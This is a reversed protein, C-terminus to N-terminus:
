NLEATQSIMKTETVTKTATCSINPM